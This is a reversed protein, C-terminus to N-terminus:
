RANPSATLYNLHFTYESLSADAREKKARSIRYRLALWCRHDFGNVLAM